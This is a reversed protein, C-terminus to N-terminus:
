CHVLVIDDWDVKPSPAAPVEVCITGSGVHIELTGGLFIDPM